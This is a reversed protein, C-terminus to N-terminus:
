RPQGFLIRTWVTLTTDLYRSPCFNARGHWSPTLGHGPHFVEDLALDHRCHGARPANPPSALDDFPQALHGGRLCRSIVRSLRGARDPPRHQHRVRSGVSSADPRRQGACVLAFPIKAV